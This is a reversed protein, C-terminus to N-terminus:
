EKVFRMTKTEADAAYTTVQYTGAALNAVQLSINNIGPALNVKQTVLQKGAIDSIVLQLMTNEGSVVNLVTNTKVPNPNVSMLEFRDNKNLLAVIQSYSIRGSEDKVKLRYYNIGNFPANDSYAFPTICGNQNVQLTQIATFDRGNSSRELILQSTGGGSCNIKWGINNKSVSVKSANFYEITIPVAAGSVNIDFTGEDGDYGYVRVYYTQGNVLGTLNATEGIGGGNDDSCAIETLTGCTGSFVELVADLSAGVNSMAVTANGDQVATFKYWVDNAISSFTACSGPAMTETAMVNTTSTANFSIPIANICEDNAPAAPPLGVQLQINGIGSSYAQVLIFYTTGATLNANTVAQLGLTTCADDDCIVETFPGACGSASTYVTLVNDSLTSLPADSQCSSIRYTGSTAPTFSYWVGKHVNSQCSGIPDNTDTANSNSVVTTTVPFPGASPIVIAGSCLDNIPPNDLTTFSVKTSNASYGSGTSSCDKRIYVDYPTNTSLGSITQVSNAPTIITGNTGATGDTGPTFNQPGYELIFTGTGTWGVDASSMTINSSTVATAPACTVPADVFLQVDGINSSYAQVLIYYTTGATLDANAVAQLGLTTCADDDCIVQTFPGTCGSASTYITLVDDSLTSGPADSQCTSIKYQGTTSPTFSYWLGKRVNSQCTGVPDNTDTASANNVVSTLVPFPGASPIVIAGSCIDNAPPLATTTFSLKTSNPSYGNGSSTCDRRIYVDYPTSPTLGTIAQPSTAPSIITGNTGASAGTGPTFNQPGYEVIFTGTGTWSVSAGSSTIGSVTQGTVPACSIPASVRLQADGVNASYGYVLIYYTTGAILDANVVAQSGLTTCADDDCIVQTFPGTCGAASTFVSMLNDSITSGPADSQCSSINYQGTTGPTFTFWLGKHANSSCTNTPDNTDTASINNVAPTTYPFPGAAPIDIAGSCIDSAPASPAVTVDLTFEGCNPSPWTDVFLYYTGATTFTYTGSATTGSGTVWGTLANASTPPCDSHLSLIKYTAAGGLSFVFTQPVTSIDLKYVYDEGGGYLSNYFSGAPYDNGTGCTTVAGSSFPVTISIADGCNNQANAFGTFILGLLVLYLQKM